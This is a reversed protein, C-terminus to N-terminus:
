AEKCYENYLQKAKNVTDSSLRSSESIIILADCEKKSEFIQKANGIRIAAGAENSVKKSVLLEICKERPFQGSSFSKFTLFYEVFITKGVSNLKRILENEKVINGEQEIRSIKKYKEPYNNLSDPASKKSINCKEGQSDYAVHCKHCLFKFNEEVPLHEKLIQNEAEKIDCSIIGNNSYKELVKEIITRRKRGHVHASHLETKQGCNECIGNLKQRYNRTFNNIANRIRPGIVDHFEQITGEFIAM